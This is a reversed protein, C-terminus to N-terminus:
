VYVATRSKIAHLRAATTINLGANIDDLVEVKLGNPYTNRRDRVTVDVADGVIVDEEDESDSDQTGDKGVRWVRLPAIAGDEVCKMRRRIKLPTQANRAATM